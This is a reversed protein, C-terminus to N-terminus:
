WLPVHVESGKSESLSCTHTFLKSSSLPLRSPIQQSLPNQTSTKSHLKLLPQKQDHLRQLSLNTPQNTTTEQRLFFEPTVRSSSTGVRRRGDRGMGKLGRGFRGREYERVPQFHASHPRFPLPRNPVEGVQSSWCRNYERNQERGVRWFSNANIKLRIKTFPLPTLPSQSSSANKTHSQQNHSCKCEQSNFNLTKKLSCNAQIPYMYRYDVSTSAGASTLTLPTSPHIYRFLIIQYILLFHKYKSTKTSWM